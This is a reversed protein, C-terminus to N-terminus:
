IGRGESCFVGKASQFHLVSILTFESTYIVPKFGM